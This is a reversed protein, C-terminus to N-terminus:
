AAAAPLSKLQHFAHRYNRTHIVVRTGSASPPMVLQRIDIPLYSAHMNHHDVSDIRELMQIYSVLLDLGKCTNLPKSQYEVVLSAGIRRKRRRRRVRNSKVM